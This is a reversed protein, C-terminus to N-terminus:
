ISPYQICVPNGTLYAACGPEYLRHRNIQDRWLMCHSEGRGPPNRLDTIISADALGKLIIYPHVFSTLPVPRGNKPMPPLPVPVAPRSHLPQKRHRRSRSVSGLLAPPIQLSSRSQRTPPIVTPRRMSKCLVRRVVPIPLISSIIASRADPVAPEARLIRSSRIFFHSRLSLLLPSQFSTFM